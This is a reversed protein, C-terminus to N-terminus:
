TKKRHVISHVYQDSLLIRFLRYRFHAKASLRYTIKHVVILLGLLQVLIQDIGMFTYHKQCLRDLGVSFQFIEVVRVCGSLRVMTDFWDISLEPGVPVMSLGLLCAFRAICYYFAGHEYSRLLCREIQRTNLPKVGGSTSSSGWMPSQFNKDPPHDEVGGGTGM